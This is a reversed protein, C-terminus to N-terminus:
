WTLLVVDAYTLVAGPRDCSVRFVVGHDSGVRGNYTYEVHTNGPVAVFDVMPDKEATEKTATVVECARIRLVAGAPATFTAHLNANYIQGPIVFQKDTENLTDGTINNDWIISLWEDAQVAMDNSCAAHHYTPMDDGQYNISPAPDRHIACSWGGTAVAHREFHLHPGTANGESGVEGVKQGAAVTTGHAIRTRTHAYFDRTGDGVDVVFQHSGFASGFSVHRVVGPRAAVVKTGTPAAYDAGTHVGKGSSDPNCSWSSGRKGYPTTITHGPVPNM